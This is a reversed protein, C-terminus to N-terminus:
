THCNASRSRNRLKIDIPDIDVRIWHEVLADPSPSITSTVIKHGEHSIIKQAVSSDTSHERPNM